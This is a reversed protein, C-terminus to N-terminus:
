PMRLQIEGNKGSRTTKLIDFIRPPLNYRGVIALRSPARVPEPKEIVNWVRHVREDIQEPEIIGYKGM